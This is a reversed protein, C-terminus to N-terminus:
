TLSREFSTHLERHDSDPDGVTRELKLAASRGEVVLTAVQNDYYPGEVLKWRVSERHVGASRALARGILAGIRSNGFRITAREHRNLANRFPSCVAQWVNAHTGDADAFSVECLYAHHVDGSIVTV